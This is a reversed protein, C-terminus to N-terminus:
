PPPTHGLILSEDCLGRDRSCGHPVIGADWLCLVSNGIFSEELRVRLSIRTAAVKAKAESGADACCGSPRCAEGGGAGGVGAGGTGGGGGRGRITTGAPVRKATTRSFPM